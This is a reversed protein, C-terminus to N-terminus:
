KLLQLYFFKLFLILRGTWCFIKSVTYTIWNNEPTSHNSQHFEFSHPPYLCNKQNKRLWTSPVLSTIEKNLEVVAYKAM